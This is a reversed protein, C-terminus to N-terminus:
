YRPAYFLNTPTSHCHPLTDQPQAALAISPPRAALGPCDLSNCSTSALTNAFGLDQLPSVPGQSAVHCVPSVLNPLDSIPSQSVPLIPIASPPQPELRIRQMPPENEDVWEPPAARKQAQRFLGRYREEEQHEPHDEFYKQVAKKLIDKTPRKIASDLTIGLEQVLAQLDPLLQKSLGGSYTYALDCRLAAQEEAKRERAIRKAEKEIEQTVREAEQAKWAELGAGSMLCRADTVLTRSKNVKQANRLNLKQQLEEIELAAM